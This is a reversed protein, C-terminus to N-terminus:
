CASPAAPSSSRPVPQRPTGSGRPRSPQPSTTSRRLRQVPEQIRRRSRLVQLEGQVEGDRRVRCGQDEQHREQSRRLSRLAKRPPLPRPLHGQAQVRQQPAAEQRQDAARRVPLLPLRETRGQRLVQRLRHLRDQLMRLLDHGHGKRRHRGGERRRDRRMRPVRDQNRDEAPALLLVVGERRPLEDQRRGQLARHSRGPRHEADQLIRHMRRLLHRRRAHGERGRRAVLRGEQLPARRLPQPVRRGKRGNGQPRLPTRRRERRDLGEHGGLLGGPPDPRPVRGRLERLRHVQVHRRRVRPEPQGRKGAPRGTSRNRGQRAPQRLLDKRQPHRVGLPDPQAGRLRRHLIRVAPM